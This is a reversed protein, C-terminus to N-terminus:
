LQRKFTESAQRSLEALTGQAHTPGATPPSSLTDVPIISSTHESGTAVPVRKEASSSESTRHQSPGHDMRSARFRLGRSRWPRQDQHCRHKDSDSSQPALRSVMNM